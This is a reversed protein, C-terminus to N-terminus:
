AEINSLSKTLEKFAETKSTYTKNYKNFKTKNGTEQNIKFGTSHCRGEEIFLTVEYKMKGNVYSWTYKNVEIEVDWIIFDEIKSVDNILDLMSQYRKATDVELTKNIISRLKKPIHPLYETRNPFLAKSIFDKPNQGSEVLSEYQSHFNDDGNCLRYLTLGVQYIDDLVTREITEFTQPSRHRVYQRKQVAFGSDDLYKALGFDTIVGRDSDNLMINTPKIDLHLLGKIHIFLLGNLFDLSYEIIKQVNLLKGETVSALSGKSYFPMTISIYESTEGAYRIPMVNPHNCENLMQAELFFDSISQGILSEKSIKKLVMFEELQRDRVLYVESNLGEDAGIQKIVEVNVNVEIVNRNLTVKM